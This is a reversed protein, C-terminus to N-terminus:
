LAFRMGGDCAIVQATIYESLESALFLAVRAVDLDKGGRRLPIKKLWGERVNDPLAETMSTDIYGPAIANCRVNRSGLEHAVSRTLGIVGAKAAAYSCQGANGNIGVVSSINIISGQRQKMMIPTIAKIYNFASKLDNNIVTDWLEENMRLILADRSIGANNILADIHGYTKHVEEVVETARNTNSADAACFIAKRGMKEIESILSETTENKARATFAIDAGNEAMLLATRRGIGRSAGTILVVKDQMLNM